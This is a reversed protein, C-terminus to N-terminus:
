HSSICKAQLYKPLNKLDIYSLIENGYVFRLTQKNKKPLFNNTILKFTASFFWPLNYIMVYCLLKPGCSNFSKIMWSVLELDMNEVTAESMDFICCIGCGERNWISQDCKDLHYLLLREFEFRLGESEILKPKHLKARLYLTSNGALDPKYSFIGNKQLWDPPFESLKTAMNIRYQYKFKACIDISNMTELYIDALEEEQDEINISSISNKKDRRRASSKIGRLLFRTVLWEDNMLREFELKQFEKVSNEQKSREVQLLNRIVEIYRSALNSRYKYRPALCNRKPRDMEIKKLNQEDSASNVLQNSAYIKSM